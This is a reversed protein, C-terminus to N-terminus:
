ALAKELSSDRGHPVWIKGKEIIHIVKWGEQILQGSIWRRHCKWPFRESCFFATRGERGIKELTGLGRKFSETEM